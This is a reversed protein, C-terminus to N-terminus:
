YSCPRWHNDNATARELKRAEPSHSNPESDLSNIKLKQILLLYPAHLANSPAEKRRYILFADRNIFFLTSNAIAGTFTGSELVGTTCSTANTTLAYKFNESAALESAMSNVKLSLSMYASGGNDNTVSTTITRQIAHESDTCTAPALKVDSSTINGGGDASCSLGPTLTFSIATNQAAASQWSWYALTGGVILFLTIAIALFIYIIKNNSNDKM